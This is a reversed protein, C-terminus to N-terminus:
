PRETAKAALVELADSLAGCWAQENCLPSDRFQEVRRPRDGLGSELLRLATPVYLELSSAVEHGFGAWRLLAASMRHAYGPGELTAVPVGLALPDLTTTAGTYPFADLVLSAEAIERLAESRGAWPVFRLAEPNGGAEAFLRRVRERARESRWSGYLLRIELCPARASLKAWQGVATPSVKAPNALVLAVPRGREPRARPTEEESWCVFPASLTLVSETYLAADESPALFPDAIMADMQPLGTTGPFGLFAALARAPKRALAPLRGGATHGALDVLVDLGDEALTGALREDPMGAVDRWADALSRLRDTRADRRGSANYAFVEIRSRDLGRFAPEIFRGVPHERLDPSLFGVRLRGGRPTRPRMRPAAAHRMGWLQAKCTLEDAPLADSCPITFLLNSWAGERDPDLALATAFAELAEDVCGAARLACGLADWAAPQSRDLALCREVDELAGDLDDMGLRSLSRNLWAPSFSPDAETARAAAREAEVAAGRDLLVAALASWGAARRPALECSRRLAREAESTEGSERLLVGLNGWAEGNCPDLRLSRRLLGVAERLRGSGYAELAQRHLRDSQRSAPLSPM